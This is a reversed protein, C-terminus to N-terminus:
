PRFRWPKLGRAELEDHAWRISQELGPGPEFLLGGVEGSHAVQVGIAGVRRATATIEDFGPQPLHRQNLRASSTAVAAVGRLDSRALAVRLSSRLQEFADIEGEDYRPVPLALTDIGTGDPATHFALVEMPPLPSKYDEIVQGQRQAFLVPRDWFTADSAGEAAVAMGAITESALSHGTARLTADIAAAVDSTSSGYGHGPPINSAITVVGGVDQIGLRDLTLGVARLAKTKWRPDVRLGDAADRELAVTAESWLAPCPLTVLGRILTGDLRFAGQLIEGHHGHAHGTALL